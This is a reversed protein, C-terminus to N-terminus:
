PLDKLEVVVFLFVSVKRVRESDGEGERERERCLVKALQPLIWQVAQAAASPM